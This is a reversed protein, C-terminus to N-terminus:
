RVGNSIQNKRIECDERSARADLTLSSHRSTYAWRSKYCRSKWRCWLILKALPWNCVAVARHLSTCGYINSINPDANANVLYRVIDQTNARDWLVTYLLATVGQDDKKDFCLRHAENDLVDKVNDLNNGAVAQHLKTPGNRSPLEYYKEYLCAVGSNSFNISSIPTHLNGDPM